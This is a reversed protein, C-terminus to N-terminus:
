VKIAKVPHTQIRDHRSIGETSNGDLAIEKGRIRAKEQELARARDVTTALWGPLQTLCAAAAALVALMALLRLGPSPAGWGSLAHHVALLLFA